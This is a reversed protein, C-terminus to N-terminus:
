IILVTFQNWV